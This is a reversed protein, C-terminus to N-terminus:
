FAYRAGIVVNRGRLPSQDRVFSTHVFALENLLNSGRLYLEFGQIRGTDFSYALTANVMDYGSTATEYSAVKDQEFTHYYEVGGSISGAMLDYRAGLRGPSIRPLNDDMSKLETDVYDGFLTLRHAPAFQYSVQGDIGSFEGDAATYALMNARVGNEDNSQILRAFIYDSVDQYFLGVEFELPGGVKRLTLNISDTEEMLDPMSPAFDIPFEDWLFDAPSKTLGLEYSNTALNVGDAFLERVSPGRETHALALALAVSPQVNWTVGFSASFPDHKLDPNGESWYTRQDAELAPRWDPGYAGIYYAENQPTLNAFFPGPIPTRITRWDKRAAIEVDVNGLSRAESLFVGVNETKRQLTGSFGVRDTPPRHIANLDLGSFTADTYQVGLTGTFGFLPQHTLEMRGDWVENTFRAFLTSGDIEDHNYDTYSGRLRLHALGPLLDDYDGRVDVRESRLRIFATLEDPTTVNYGISGHPRCHFELRDFYYDGHCASNAHSHGPLGYENDVRSYAAGFYGKFTIWSAGFAYSGSEAFSDRLRDTGFSDPVDYNDARRLAGEAHIAVNSGLGVTFRGVGSKEHDGTGYRIEAAGSMGGEPMVKPVKSDILNIAGNTANGGYRIAAPGRQIEIADLLLPDTTIAHDPSISSVDFLNAGDSLIEIRPLTQGRIVPRSAGGGFSDLHVGPLGALTEGLGGQRRHVLEDGSLVQVPLATRKTEFAQSTVIINGSPARVPQAESATKPTGNSDQAWAPAAAGAVFATTALLAAAGRSIHRYQM